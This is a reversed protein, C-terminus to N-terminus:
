LELKKLIMSSNNPSFDGGEGTGVWEKEEDGYEEEEDREEGDEEEGKRKM